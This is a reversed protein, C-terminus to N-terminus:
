APPECPAPISPPPLSIMGRCVALLYRNQLSSWFAASWRTRADICFSGTLEDETPATADGVDAEHNHKAAKEDFDTYKEGILPQYHAPPPM